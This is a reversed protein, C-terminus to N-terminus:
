KPIEEIKYVLTVVCTPSIGGEEVCEKNETTYSSYTYGFPQLTERVIKNYYDIAFWKALVPGIKLVGNEYRIQERPLSQAVQLLKETFATFPFRDQKAPKNNVAIPSKEINQGGSNIGINAYDNKAFTASAFNLLMAGTLTFTGVKKILSKKMKTM